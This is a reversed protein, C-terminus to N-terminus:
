LQYQLLCSDATKLLLSPNENMYLIVAGTAAIHKYFALVNIMM